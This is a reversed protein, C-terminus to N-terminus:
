KQQCVFAIEDKSRVKVPMDLEMVNFAQELLTKRDLLAKVDLVKKGTETNLTHNHHRLDYTNQGHYVYIYHWASWVPGIEGKIQLKFLVNLDEEVRCQSGSQPYFLPFMDFVKRYFMVSGCLYRHAPISEGSWDCWYLEKTESYYKLFDCYLSAVRSSNTRLVNYQMMLRDPHYLDDDDWQCLVEGQSIDVTTNRITGLPVDPHAVHFTIDSRGLSTLYNRIAVNQESTGQSIIVMNKNM